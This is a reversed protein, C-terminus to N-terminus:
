RMRRSTELEPVGTMTIEETTKQNPKDITPFWVSSNEPQGLTWIQTPKDTQAGDPNVFYLGQENAANVDVGLDAALKVSELALAERQAKPVPVWAVGNGMGMAAMM